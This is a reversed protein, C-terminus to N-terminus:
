VQYYLDASIVEVDNGLYDTWSSENPASGCEMAISQKLFHELQLSKMREIVSAPIVPLASLHLLASSCQKYQDVLVPAPM